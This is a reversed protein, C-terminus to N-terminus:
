AMFLGSRGEAVVVTEIFSAFFRRVSSARRTSPALTTSSSVCAREEVSSRRVMRKVTTWRIASTARTSLHLM